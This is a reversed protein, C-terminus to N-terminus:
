QRYPQTSTPNHPSRGSQCPGRLKLASARQLVNPSPMPKRLTLGAIVFLAAPTGDLSPALANDIHGIVVNYHEASQLDEGDLEKHINSAIREVKKHNPQDFFLCQVELAYLWRQEHDQPMISGEALNRLCKGTDM